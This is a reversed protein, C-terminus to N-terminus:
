RRKRFEIPTMGTQRKFVQHFYTRAGFGCLKRVQDMTMRTGIILQKARAVRQRIVYDTFSVGEERRFLRGFYDPAFGSVRAVQSLSLPESLQDRIFDLARRTGRQQGAAIASKQASELETVLQRYVLSVESLTESKDAKVSAEAFLEEFSKRDLVGRALLPGALREVGAELESRSRELRYGSWVLVAQVYREFRPALLRPDERGSQDLEARLRHRADGTSARRPPAFVVRTGQSLAQEAASLASAYGVSLLARGKAQSVGVCLDLGHRRALAGLHSSMESLRARTRAPAGRGGVLLTVGHSGVRGCAVDGIKRAFAVCARQFLDRQILDDVPDATDKRGRLLGAIVHEPLHLVGLPPLETNMEGVARQTVVREAAKWMRDAYRADILAARLTQARPAIVDPSERGSVLDSFCRLLHEINKTAGGELTLMNQSMQLYSLFLADSIRGHTGSIDLWRELVESASPRSRAFPGAVLVGWVRKGEFIPVFLDFFGAHEGVVSTGEAVVKSLCRRNYAWRRTMLGFQLEFETTSPVGNVVYWDDRGVWISLGIGLEACANAIM